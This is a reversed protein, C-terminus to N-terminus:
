KLYNVDMAYPIGSPNKPDVGFLGGIGILRTTYEATLDGDLTVRIQETPTPKPICYPCVGNTPCLIFHKLGSLQRAPMMYGKIFVQKKDAALQVAKGPLEGPNDKDPQLTEYSIAEYGTPM